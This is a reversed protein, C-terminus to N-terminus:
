IKKKLNGLQICMEMSSLSSGSRKPETKAAVLRMTYGSRHYLWRNEM